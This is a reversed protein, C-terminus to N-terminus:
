AIVLDFLMFNLIEVHVLFFSLTFYRTFIDLEKVSVNLAFKGNDSKGVTCFVRVEIGAHM